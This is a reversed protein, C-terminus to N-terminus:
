EATCSSSWMCTGIEEDVGKTTNRGESKAATQKTEFM